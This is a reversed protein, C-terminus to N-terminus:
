RRCGEAGPLMPVVVLVRPRGAVSWIGDPNTKAAAYVREAVSGTLVGCALESAPETSPKLFGAPDPGPWEAASPRGGEAYAFELVRVREPIYPAPPADDALGYASSIIKRLEARNRRQTRTLGEEFREEFAYVQAFTKGGSGHLGITAFAQDTVTADGFDTVDNVLNQEEADRVFRAVAVPDARVVDYAPPLGPSSQESLRIVRGDGYVSLSSGSTARGVSSTWGNSGADFLFVRQDPPLPTPTETPRGLPGVGCGSLALALVVVLLRPTQAARRVLAVEREGTV